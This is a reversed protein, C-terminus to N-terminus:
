LDTRQWHSYFLDSFTEKHKCFASKVVYIEPMERLCTTFVSALLAWTLGIPSPITNQLLEADPSCYWNDWVPPRGPSPEFDSAKADMASSIFSPPTTDPKAQQSHAVGVLLCVLLVLPGMM